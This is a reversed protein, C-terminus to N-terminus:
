LWASRVTGGWSSFVIRLLSNELTDLREREPMARPLAKVTSEVPLGARLEAESAQVPVALDVAVPRKRGTLYTWGFLILFVILFAILVRRTDEM